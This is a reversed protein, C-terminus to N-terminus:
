AAGPNAGSHHRRRRHNARRRDAPGPRKGFGYRDDGRQRQGGSMQHPYSALRTEPDPIGVLHLLELVRARTREPSLGKHVRLVEGIQKYVTHLPNLATMPEQFIMAIRNGRISRLTNKSAGIMEQGEFKISGSPHSAPPYALLQLISLASVSKGSGSEGVIALTEGKHLEFSIGRVAHATRKGIQFDVALNEVQLLPASM